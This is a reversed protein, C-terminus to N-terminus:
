HNIVYQYTSSSVQAIFQDAISQSTGSMGVCLVYPRSPAYVIGCDSYTQTPISIGIKHAVIVNQPVGAAIMNNFPTQSLYSLIKQSDGADDYSANYLALFMNSLTHVDINIYSSTAGIAPFNTWGMSDYVDAFPDTIGINNLVSFLANMATNDSNELMISVLQEITFTQGAGGKYLTGFNDDLDSQQLTYSDTMNLKGEEAAKYVAMALPVKITSAATFLTSANLGIEVSSNLYDFYIYTGSSYQQQISMLESRLDEFNIIFHQDSQYAVDGNLLGYGTTSTSVPQVTPTSTNPGQTSVITTSAPSATGFIFYGVLGGVILAAVIAAAIRIHKKM